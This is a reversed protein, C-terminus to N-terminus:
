MSAPAAASSMSWDKDGVADLIMRAMKPYAEASILVETTTRIPTTASYSLPWRSISTRALDLASKLASLFREDKAGFSLGIDYNNKEPIM